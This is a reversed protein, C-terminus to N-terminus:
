ILIKAQLLKRKFELNGDIVKCYCLHFIFMLSQKDTNLVKVLLILLTLKLYGFMINIINFVINMSVSTLERIYFLLQKCLYQEPFAPSIRSTIILTQTVLIQQLYSMRVYGSSVNICSSVFAYVRPVCSNLARYFVIKRQATFVEAM